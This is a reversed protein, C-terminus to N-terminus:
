QDSNIYIKTSYEDAKKHLGQLHIGCFVFAAVM